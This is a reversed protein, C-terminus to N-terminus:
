RCLQAMEKEQYAGVRDQAPVAVQELPLMGRGAYRSPTSARGGDARDAGQDQAEGTLVGRPPIPADMALERSQPDLDGGGCHPLDELLM